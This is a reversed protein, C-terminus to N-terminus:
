ILFPYICGKSLQLQPAAINRAIADSGGANVLLGLLIHIDDQAYRLIQKEAQRM